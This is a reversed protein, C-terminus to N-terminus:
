AVMGLPSSWPESSKYIRDSFSNGTDEVNWCYNCEEPRKGSLMERRKQKKFRTNHLASPNREIEDIPIKHPSPHHCSHTMGMSLHMTVQTWKALCFGCGVDDLREKTKEFVENLM